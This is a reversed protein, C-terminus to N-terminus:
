ADPAMFGLGDGDGTVGERGPAALGACACAEGAENPFSSFIERASNHSLLVCMRWLILSPSQAPLSTLHGFGSNTPFGVISLMPDVAM